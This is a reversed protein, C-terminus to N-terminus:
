CPKATQPATMILPQTLFSKLKTFAKDADELWTFKEVAKLLKFFSLGKKGLRSIFSRLPERSTQHLMELDYKTGPHECMAMYNAVFARKLDEWSGISDLRLSLLWNNASQNLMVLLYNAMVDNSRSATHIAIEYLTLWQEPNAKGDYTDVWLDQLEHAV